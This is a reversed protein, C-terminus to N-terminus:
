IYKKLDDITLEIQKCYYSPGAGCYQYTVLTDREVCDMDKALIKRGKIGNSYREIILKKLASRYKNADTKRVFGVGDSPSLLIRYNNGYWGDDEWWNFTLVYDKKKTTM